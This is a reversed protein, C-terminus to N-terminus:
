IVKKMKGSESDYSKAYGNSDIHVGDSDSILGAIRRADSSIAQSNTVMKSKTMHSYEKGTHDKFVQKCATLREELAELEPEMRQYLAVKKELNVDVVESGEAPILEKIEARLEDMIKVKYNHSNQATYCMDRYVSEIFAENLEPKTQRPLKALAEVLQVLTANELTVKKTTTSM